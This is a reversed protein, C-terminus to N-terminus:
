RWTDLGDAMANYIREVTTKKTAEGHEWLRYVLAEVDLPTDPAVRALDCMQYFAQRTENPWLVQGYPGRVVGPATAQHLQRRYAVSGKM